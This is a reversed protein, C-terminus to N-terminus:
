TASSSTVTTKDINRALNRTENTIESHKLKHATSLESHHSHHEGARRKTHSKLGLPSNFSTRRVAGGVSERDILSCWYLLVEYFAAVEDDKSFSVPVPM